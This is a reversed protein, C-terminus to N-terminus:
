RIIKKQAIVMREKKQLDSHVQTTWVQDDFLQAVQHAYREHTEFVVMRCLPGHSKVQNVISRYFLLPDEDPVFLALHPEHELVHAQMEGKDRELVYPPNSIVVSASPILDAVDRM